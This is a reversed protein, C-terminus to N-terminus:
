KADQDYWVEFITAAVGTVPDPDETRTQTDRITINTEGALWDNVAKIIADPTDERFIKSKM